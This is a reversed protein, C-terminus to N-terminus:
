FHCLSYNQLHQDAYPILIYACTWWRILLLVDCTTQWMCVHVHINAANYVMESCLFLFNSGNTLLHSVLTTKMQLLFM